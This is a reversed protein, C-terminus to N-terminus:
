TNTVKECKKFWPLVGGDGDIFVIDVYDFLKRAEASQYKSNPEYLYDDLNNRDRVVVDPFSVMSM